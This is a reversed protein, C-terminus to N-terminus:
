QSSKACNGRVIVRYILQRTVLGRCRSAQRIIRCPL